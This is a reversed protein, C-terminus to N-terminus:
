FGGLKSKVFEIADKEDCYVIYNDKQKYITMMKGDRLYQVYRSKTIKNYIGCLTYALAHFLIREKGYPSTEFKNIVNWIEEFKAGMDNLSYNFDSLSPWANTISKDFVGMTAAFEALTMKIKKDKGVMAITGHSAESLAYAKGDDPNNLNHLFGKDQTKEYLYAADNKVNYLDCGRYELDKDLSRINIVNIVTLGMIISRISDLVNSVVGDRGSLMWLDGASDMYLEIYSLESEICIRYSSMSQCACYNIVFGDATVPFDDYAGLIRKIYLLFVDKFKNACPPKMRCYYTKDRDVKQLKIVADEWSLKETNGDSYILMVNNADAPRIDTINVDGTIHQTCDNIFARYVALEANFKANSPM